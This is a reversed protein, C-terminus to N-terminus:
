KTLDLTPPNDCYRVWTIQAEKNLFVNTITIVPKANKKVPNNWVSGVVIYRDKGAYAGFSNKASYTGCMSISETTEIVGGIEAKTKYHNTQKSILKFSSPDKMRQKLYKEANQEFSQSPKTNITSIAIIAVGVVILLLFLKGINSKKKAGCNPCQKAKDSIQKGCEWCDILAM